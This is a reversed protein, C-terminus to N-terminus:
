RKSNALYDIVRPVSGLQDRLVVLEVKRLRRKPKYVGRHTESVQEKGEAGAMALEGHGRLPVGCDHCHKRVQNTFARMPLQWWSMEEDGEATSVMCKGHHLGIGTDQYDPEDQHLMAQAGAVECFWARLQGRFVGIMASWHKNIDCGSILEWALSEDYITSVPPQSSVLQRHDKNGCKLCTTFVDCDPEDCGCSHEGGNGGCEPCAVRLVDRLAVMTPSHRSDQTLGVPHCEPWDRKFETYAAQDLHVNLNSHRASFTERCVSGHGLLNNSWLGRQEKNPVHKRLIACYEDFDPSTCPNGGFVGYVGWWGQLSLVAEEFQEPTMFWPRRSLNSGQTCHYCAKDCVSTVCIQIVGEMYKGPRKTGPAIMRDLAQQETM